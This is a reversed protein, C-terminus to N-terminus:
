ENTSDPSEQRTESAMAGPLREQIVGLWTERDYFQSMRGLKKGNLVLLFHPIGALGFRTALSMHKYANVQIMRMPAGRLEELMPPLHRAFVECNPCQHGWFYVVILVDRPAFVLGDFTEPAAELIEPLPLAPHALDLATTDNLESM